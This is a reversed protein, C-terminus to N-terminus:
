RKYEIKVLNVVRSYVGGPRRCASVAGIGGDCLARVRDADFLEVDLGISARHRCRTTTLERYGSEDSCALGRAPMVNTMV